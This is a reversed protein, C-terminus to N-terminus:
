PPWEHYYHELEYYSGSGPNLARMTKSFRLCASTTVLGCCLHLASSFNGQSEYYEILQNVIDTVTADNRRRAREVGSTSRAVCVKWTHGERTIFSTAHHLADLLRTGEDEGLAHVILDDDITDSSHFLLLVDQTKEDFRNEFEAEFYAM